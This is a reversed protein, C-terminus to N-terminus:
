LMMLMEKRCDGAMYRHQLRRDEKKQGKEQIRGNRTMKNRNGSLATFGLNTAM